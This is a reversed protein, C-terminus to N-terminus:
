KHGRPSGAARELDALERETLSRWKGQPLGDLTVNMVRIRQLATVRYGLAECMRRIQRNLGQTLIIAFSTPSQKSVVCPRTVTDLIAVGSRMSELFADTVPRNVTVIYEKEHRNAGRAISQSLAGDNTLLILGTSEKDLRGVPFLREPYGVFDVINVEGPFRATTCVVGAPKHVALVVRKPAAGIPKGDVSVTETGNLKTGLSAPVGNVSVRGQEILRDAERRSCVGARSLYHNM